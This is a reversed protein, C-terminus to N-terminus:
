DALGPHEELQGIHQTLRKRMGFIPEAFRHRTLMGADCETGEPSM